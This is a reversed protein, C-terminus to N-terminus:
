GSRKECKLRKSRKDGEPARFCTPLSYVLHSPTLRRRRLRNVVKMTPPLQGALTTHLIMGKAHRLDCMPLSGGRMIGSATYVAPFLTEFDAGSCVYVQNVQWQEAAM